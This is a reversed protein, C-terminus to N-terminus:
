PFDALIAKVKDPTMAPADPPAILVKRNGEKALRARSARVPEILARQGELSFKIKDGPELHLALRIKRPIVLQGKSSLTATDM